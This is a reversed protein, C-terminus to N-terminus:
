KRLSEKLLALKKRVSGDIVEDGVKIIIGGKLNKDIKNKLVVKKAGYREKVYSEVKDIQSSGLERASMVEAEIIGNQRNWIENFNEIINETLGLQNNVSLEKAFKLVVGDVVQSDKEETLDHLVQAYQKASIKM